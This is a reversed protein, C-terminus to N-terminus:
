IQWSPVGDVHTVDIRPRDEGPVLRFRLPVVESTLMEPADLTSRGVRELRGERLRYLELAWPDRDILLVERTGVRAYFPIKERARDNASLIEVAFDPGGLWYDSRNIGQTNPLFVVIDPCRYNQTWDGDRDSINVGLRVAARDGSFVRLDLLSTLKGRIAQHENDWLPMLQYVGDWVEDPM